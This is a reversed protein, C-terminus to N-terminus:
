FCVSNKPPLVHKVHDVTLRPPTIPTCLRGSPLYATETALVPASLDQPVLAIQHRIEQASGRRSRQGVFADSRKAEVEKGGDSDFTKVEALSVSPSSSHTSEHPCTEFMHQCVASWLSEVSDSSTRLAPTTESVGLGGRGVTVSSTRLNVYRSVERGGGGLFFWEPSRTRAPRYGISWLLIFHWGTILLRQLAQSSHRTTDSNHHFTWSYSAKLITFRNRSSDYFVRLVITVLFSYIIFTLLHRSLFSWLDPLRRQM